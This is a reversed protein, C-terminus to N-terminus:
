IYENSPIIKEITTMLSQIWLSVKTRYMWNVTRSRCNIRKERRGTMECKEWHVVRCKVRNSESMGVILL